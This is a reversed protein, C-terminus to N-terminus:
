FHSTSASESDSNQKPMDGRHLVPVGRNELGDLMDNFDHQLDTLFDGPRLKIKRVPKGAGVDLMTRRFRVLPGVLRHTFRVADWALVPVILAFIILTPAYELFFNWYQELPNGPGEQLVRWVFLFNWVAVQYILWYLAIRIFLRTQFQNVLIKKRDDSM